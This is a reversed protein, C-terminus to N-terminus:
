FSAFDIYDVGDLWTSPINIYPFIITISSYIHKKESKSKHNLYGSALLDCWYEKILEVVVDLEPSKPKVSGNKNKCYKEIQIQKFSIFDEMFFIASTIDHM